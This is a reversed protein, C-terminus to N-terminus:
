LTNGEHLKRKAEIYASHALEATQYDGLFINKGNLKIQARYIGRRKDLTAGLLRTSKNCPRAVRTNQTNLANTIDRLNAFRNDNKIGNIHDIHKDPMSGTMYMWALRHAFYLKGDISFVLYGRSNCGAIDGEKANHSTTVLRFFDGTGSDYRFLEKLREQTLMQLAWYFLAEGSSEDKRFNSYRMTAGSNM